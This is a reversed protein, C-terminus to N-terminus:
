VQRVPLRVTFVSGRGWESEVGITGGMKEVLKKSISLGLGTGEHRRALTSDIQHFPQFLGPVAEPRIGVGTDSVTLLYHGGEARCSVAVHGRDTFKVANALLNLIVQELRRQDSSVTGVDDAVSVRLELGKKRALPTVLEVMRQLADRLEFESFSLTLQGAEIKSIDLVDNILALLHRASAQVMGLQKKQEDNLPGTLGEGMIDSFGIISNLPTRLEHSMTALFASKIRDASEAREKARALEDTRLAVRAELEANLRRLKDEALRRAQIEKQLMSWERLLFFYLLLSTVLVFGWGKYTQLFTIRRPDDTFLGIARDSFLIWLGGLLAYLGATRVPLNVKGWIGGIVKPIQMM